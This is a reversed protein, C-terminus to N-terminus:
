TFITNVNTHREIHKDTMQNNYQQKKKRNQQIATTKNKTFM